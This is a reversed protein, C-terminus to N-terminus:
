VMASGPSDLRWSVRRSRMRNTPGASLGISSTSARSAQRDAPSMRANWRKPGIRVSGRATIM